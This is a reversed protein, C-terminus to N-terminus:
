KKDYKNKHSEKKIEAAFEKVTREVLWWILPLIIFVVEGGIGGTTRETLAARHTLFFLIVGVVAIIIYKLATKIVKKIQKVGQKKDCTQRKM